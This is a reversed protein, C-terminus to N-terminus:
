DKTNMLNSMGSVDSKAVVAQVLLYLDDGDFPKHARDTPKASSCTSYSLLAIIRSM